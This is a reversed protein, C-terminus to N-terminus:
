EAFPNIRGKPPEVSINPDNSKHLSDLKERTKTDFSNPIDSQVKANSPDSVNLFTTYALYISISLAAAGLVSLIVFNYRIFFAEAPNTPKSM